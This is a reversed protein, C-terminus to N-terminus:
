KRIPCSDFVKLKRGQMHVFWNVKYDGGDSIDFEVEPCNLYFIKKVANGDKVLYFSYCIDSTFKEVDLWFTLTDDKIEYSVDNLRFYAGGFIYKGMQKELIVSSNQIVEMTLLYVGPTNLYISVNEGSTIYESKESLSKLVYRFNVGDGKIENTISLCDKNLLVNCGSNYSVGYILRMANKILYEPFYNAIDNHNKVESSMTLNYSIGKQALENLFPAVHVNYQWDNTSSIINIETHDIKDILNYIANNIIDINENEWPVGLMFDATETAARMVYDAIKIQPAGSLVGGFNYKMGFYLAASGGKSSGVAILDKREINLEAAINDILAIVSEEIEYNMNEVMYYCGRPGFSDLIFLKNCKLCRLSRIYNYTHQEQATIRNFSSFVVLMKDCDECKEFVYKVMRKGQYIKEDFQFM